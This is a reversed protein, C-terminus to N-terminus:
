YEPFKKFWELIAVLNDSGATNDNFTCDEPHNDWDCYSYGVGAPQEIYLVNAEKNWSHENKTFTTAGNELLYPGHEQIWGLM